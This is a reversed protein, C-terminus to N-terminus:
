RQAGPVYDFWDFFAPTGDGVAYLGFFLGTFGTVTEMSVHRTTLYDRRGMVPHDKWTTLKRPQRDGGAAYSFEYRYANAAIELTVPGDAVPEQCVVSSLGDVTVKAVIMRQAGRRTLALEYHHFEDVRITLGAEEGDRPDFDCLAAVSCDM